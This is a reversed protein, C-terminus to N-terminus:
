KYAWLIYPINQEHSNRPSAVLKIEEPLWLSQLFIMILIPTLKIKSNFHFSQHLFFFTM